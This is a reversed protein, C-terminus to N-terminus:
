HWAEGSQPASWMPQVQALDWIFNHTWLVMIPSAVGQKQSQPWNLHFKSILSSVSGFLVGLTKWWTSVPRFYLEYACEIATQLFCYLRTASGSQVVQVAQDQHRWISGHHSCDNYGYYAHDHWPCEKCSQQLPWATTGGWTVCQEM